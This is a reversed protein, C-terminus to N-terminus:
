RCALSGNLCNSYGVDYRQGDGLVALTGDIVKGGVAALVM